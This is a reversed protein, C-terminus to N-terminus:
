EGHIKSGNTAFPFQNREKIRPTSLLQPSIWPVIVLCDNLEKPSVNEITKNETSKMWWSDCDRAWVFPDSCACSTPYNIRLRTKWKVAKKLSPFKVM